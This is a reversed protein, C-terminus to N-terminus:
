PKRDSPRSVKEPRQAPQSKEAPQSRQTTSERATTAQPTRSGTSRESREAQSTSRDSTSAPRASRGTNWAGDRQSYIRARDRPALEINATTTGTSRPTGPRTFGLAPGSQGPRRYGPRTLTLTPGPPRPGAQPTPTYDLGAYRYYQDGFGYRSSGCGRQFGPTGYVWNGFGSSLLSSLGFLSHDQLFTCDFMADAYTTYASTTFSRAFRLTYERGGALVEAFSQISERPDHTFQYNEAELEDWLGFASIRDFRLPSRSAIIFIYGHGRGDYSDMRASVGRYRTTAFSYLSPVADYQATFVPTRFSKGGPIRGSERADQPHIVRIQGDGGLHGVLTYAPEDVKFVADVRRYLLGGSYNAHIWVKPAVKPAAPKAPANLTACSAVVCLLGSIGIARQLSMRGSRDSNYVFQLMRRALAIALQRLRV